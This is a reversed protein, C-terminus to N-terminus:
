AEPSEFARRYWDITWRLWGLRRVAVVDFRVSAPRWRTQRLWLRALRILRRQKDPGVTWVPGGAFGEGSSTRVEVIVVADGDRAIIDLEGQPCRWNREVIRMEHRRLFRAARREGKRGLRQRARTM